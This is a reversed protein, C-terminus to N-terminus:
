DRIPVGAEREIEGVARALNESCVALEKDGNQGLAAVCAQAADVFFMSAIRTMMVSYAWAERGLKQRDEDPWDLGVLWMLTDEGTIHSAGSLRHYSEFYDTERQLAQFRKFLSKHWDAKAESPEIACERKIHEVFRTLSDVLDKRDNIMAIIEASGGDNEIKQRWDGLKKGHENLWSQFFQVLTASDGHTAFYMVNISGEVVTRALAEASAASGTTMAVLMAQTHEFVRALLNMLAQVRFNENADMSITSAWCNDAIGNAQYVAEIAITVARLDAKPHLMFSKRFNNTHSM